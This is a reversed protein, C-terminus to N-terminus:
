SEQLLAGTEPLADDPVQAPEHAFEAGRSPPASPERCWQLALRRPERALAPCGEAPDDQIEMRGPGVQRQRDRARETDTLFPQPGRVDILTM